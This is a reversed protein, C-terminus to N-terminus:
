VLPPILGLDKGSRYDLADSIMTQISYQPNYGLLSQAKRINMDYGWYHKIVRDYYPLGTMEHILKVAVEWSTSEAGALNFAEGVAEDRELCLMIGQMLDRVDVLHERWARFDPGRPIILAKPDGFLDAIQEEPRNEGELYVCSSPHKSYGSLRSKLASVTFADLVEDCCKVNSFRMAVVPLGTESQASFLIDECVKKTLGYLFFPRQPHQEDIPTYKYNWCTYTADTSAMIFRKVHNHAASRILEFTGTVNNDWYVREPRTGIQILAALHVVMDCGSVARDVDAKDLLSGEFIDVDLGNLKARQPDNPMVFARVGYGAQLLKSVLNAGVRGTAGTLLVRKM